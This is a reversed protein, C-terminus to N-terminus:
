LTGRRRLWGVLGAGITGLLIAGPAPITAVTLSLDVHGGVSGVECWAGASMALALEHSPDVPYAKMVSFSPPYLGPCFNELLAGSATDTLRVAYTYEWPWTCAGTYEIQLLDADPRFTYTSEAYAAFQGIVLDPGTRVEVAWHGASSDCTDRVHIEQGGAQSVYSGWGSASVALQSDRAPPSYSGTVTQDYIQSAVSGAAMNWVHHTESLLEVGSAAASAVGCLVFLVIGSVGVTRM